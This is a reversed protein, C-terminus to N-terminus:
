ISKNIRKMYLLVFIYCLWVLSSETRRVTPIKYSCYHDNLSKRIEGVKSKRFFCIIMMMHLRCMKYRWAYLIPDVIFTLILPTVTYNGIVALASRDGPFVSIVITAICFPGHLIAYVAFIVSLRKLIPMAYLRSRNNKNKKAINVFFSLFLFINLILILLNMIGVVTINNQFLSISIDSSNYNANMCSSILHSNSIHYSLTILFGFGWMSACAKKMRNGQLLKIYKFPFVIAVFRDLTMATISFSTVFYSQIELSFGFLIVICDDNMQNSYAGTGLLLSFIASTCFLLNSVLFNMSLVRIGPSLTRSRKMAILACSNMIISFLVIVILLHKNFDM